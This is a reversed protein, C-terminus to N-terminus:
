GTAQLGKALTAVFYDIEQVTNFYHVSARVVQTLGRQNFSVLNGSGQSTSVNIRHKALHQQIEGPPQQEAYFTVIGCKELGTDTVTIGDIEVLKSRLIDALRVIRQQIEALGFSQAYDMAVGLGAKGAFYQEWNEFRKADSRMIYRDPSVLDAAHQDLLPPEMDAIREKRVYLVGTGRPGRLFKRGTGSFMDCGIDAVDLPMQGVTQCADLLYPIGAANAIKGVAKAPNVLGGGTPIHSIAILKVRDDILNELATVDLQGYEDNPVFVVEVGYRQAQQIYAIVNSGYEDISTLIRDGRNFRFSYFAMDWARTANEVFAIEDPNCNFMGAAATYFNNLAEEEQDATEYGGNHEEKELFAHLTDAVPAPMLSSGANNFHIIDECARTESRARSIDFHSKTTITM